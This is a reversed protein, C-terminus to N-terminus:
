VPIRKALEGIMFEDVIDIDHLFIDAQVILEVTAIDDMCVGRFNAPDTEGTKKWFYISFNPLKRRSDKGEM